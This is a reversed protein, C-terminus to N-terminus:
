EISGGSNLTTQFLNDAFKEELYGPLLYKLKQLGYPKQQM